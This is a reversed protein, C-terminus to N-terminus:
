ENEQKKISDILIYIIMLIIGIVIIIDAFNFIPYTFLNNIDIYDIVYGFAFEILWIGM